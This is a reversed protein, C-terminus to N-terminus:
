RTSLETPSGASADKQAQRERLEAAIEDALPKVPRLRFDAYANEAKVYSMVEPDGANRLWDYDDTRARGHEVLTKAVVRASPPAAGPSAGEARLPAFRDATPVTSCLIALGFSLVAIRMLPM